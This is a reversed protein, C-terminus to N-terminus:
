GNDKLVFVVAVDRTCWVVSCDEACFMVSGQVPVAVLSSRGLPYWAPNEFAKNAIM